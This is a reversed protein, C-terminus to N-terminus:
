RRVKLRLMPKEIYTWSLYAIMLSSGIVVLYLYSDGVMGLGILIQVVLMHYLYTSYSLDLKRNIKIHTFSFAMSFMAFSMFITQILTLITLESRYNGTDAFYYVKILSYLIYFSLYYLGYGIFYKKIEVWYLRMLVGIAFIWVYPFVSITLLKMISTFNESQAYDISFSLYLSFLSMAFLIAVKFLDKKVFLILPLLVYFSLEVSLTWLVGSPYDNFFGVTSWIDAGRLGVLTTGIGQVATAVYTFFYIIYESITINNGDMNGGIYLAFELILINVFLAPYIRLGRKIFYDKIGSNLYSDTILFGSIVFFLPVGPFFGIFNHLQEGGGELKLWHTTHMYVVQLAFLLRFFNLHNNHNIIKNM